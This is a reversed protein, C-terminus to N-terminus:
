LVYAVGKGWKQNKPSYNMEDSEELKCPNRKLIVGIQYLCVNVADGVIADNDKSPSKSNSILIELNNLIKTYSFSNKLFHRNQLNLLDYYADYLAKMNELSYFSKNVMVNGNNSKCEKIFIDEIRRFIINRAFKSNEKTIKIYILMGPFSFVCGTIIAVLSSEIIKLPLNDFVFILLICALSFAIIGTMIKFAVNKNIM